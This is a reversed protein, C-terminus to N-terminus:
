VPKVRVTERSAREQLQVHIELNAVENALAVLLRGTIPEGVICLLKVLALHERVLQAGHLVEEFATTLYPPWGPMMISGTHNIRGWILAGRKALQAAFAAVRSGKGALIDMFHVAVEIASLRCSDWLPRGAEINALHGARSKAVRVSTPSRSRWIDARAPVRPVSKARFYSHAAICSKLLYVLTLASIFIVVIHSDDDKASLVM